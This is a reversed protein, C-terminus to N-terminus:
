RIMDITSAMIEDTITIVKAAAQYARQYELLTTAEEDTNVGSVSEVLQTVQSLLTDQSDNEVTAASADVGLEVIMAQYMERFSMTGGAAVSANELDALLLANQNDGSASSFGAAIADLSNEVDASITMNKAAGTTTNVRIYDGAVPPGTVSNLTVQIGDFSLTMGATYAGSALTTGTTTDEVTYTTPSTFRIEYDDLTLLTEDSVASATVGVGGQSGQGTKASVPLTAFFDRGSVGDLGTGARHQANFALVFEAALRDLKDMQEPVIEDRITLAAGLTGSTLSDTIDMQIGSSTKWIVQKKLDNTVDTQTELQYYTAGAVLPMGGEISVSYNGKEDQMVKVPVLESLQRVLEDRENCLENTGMKNELNQGIRRSLEAVNKVISNIKAVADDVVVDQSKMEQDMQNYYFEFLSAISEGRSRLTARESAGSPNSSLDQLATFFDEFEEDLGRQAVDNFLDELNKCTVAKAEACSADSTVDLLRKEAFPNLQREISTVTVGLGYALNAQNVRQRKYGETNVNAINQATVQLGLQSVYLGQRAISLTTYVSM